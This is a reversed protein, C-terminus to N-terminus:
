ANGSRFLPRIMSSFFGDLPEKLRTGVGQSLAGLTETIELIIAEEKAKFAEIEDQIKLFCPAGSAITNM